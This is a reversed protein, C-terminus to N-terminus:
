CLNYYKKFNKNEIIIETVTITMKKVMSCYFFIKKNIDIYTFM